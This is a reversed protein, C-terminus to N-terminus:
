GMNSFFTPYSFMNYVSDCKVTITTELDCKVTITTELLEVFNESFSSMFDQYAQMPSRGCLLPLDDCAFSVYERNKTGFIDEFNMGNIEM